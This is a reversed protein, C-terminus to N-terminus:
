PEIREIWSIGDFDTDSSLLYKLNFRQMTELVLADNGFLGYTEMITPFKKLVSYNVEKIDLKLIEIFQLVKKVDEALLKVKKKDKRLRQTAKNEIGFKVKASIVMVKFLVEDLIRTTTVLNLWGTEALKFIEKTNDNCEGTFFYIFANADVFIKKRYLRRVDFDMTYGKM